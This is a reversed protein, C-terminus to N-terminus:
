DDILEKISELVREKWKQKKFIDVMFGCNSSEVDRKGINNFYKITTNVLANVTPEVISGNFDPIVINGLGGVNTAIVPCGCMISEIASLSTGESWITPIFTLFADRYMLGIEDFNPHVVEVDLDKLNYSDLVKYIADEKFDESAIRVKFELGKNKLESCTELFLSYGRKEVFRRPFFLIKQKDIDWKQFKYQFVKEDAFNPIYILKSPNKFYGVSKERMWNIFNTDVCIVRKFSMVAKKYLFNNLMVHLREKPNDWAIGHQLAFSNKFVKHIGLLADSYCVISAQETKAIKVIKKAFQRDGFFGKKSKLCLVKGIGDLEFTYNKESKTAFVVNYDLEKFIKALEIAYRQSGGVIIGQEPNKHRVLFQSEIIITKM